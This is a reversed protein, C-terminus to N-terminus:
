IGDIVNAFYNNIDDEYDLENCLNELKEKMEPEKVEIKNKAVWEIEAFETTINQKELNEKVKPLKEPETYVTWGDDELTLNEAGAEILQLEFEEENQSNARGKCRIIGKKEFMWLASNPAGLNGDYKNLLHKVISATRNKNDTLAEIILAIGGPLFGEYLVTEIKTGDALEGTGRKIAREINEKPMNLVRAQDITLRLKFNATPDGGGEKAAVTISRALKTFIAGRKIDEAGKQHKIKAWKSHRSM